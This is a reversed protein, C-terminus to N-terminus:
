VKRVEDKLLANAVSQPTARSYISTTSINSHRLIKKIDVINTNKETLRMALTHRLIHLGTKNIGAKKYIRNVILYAEERRLGKGTRTVMLPAKEDVKAINKFYYIEEEIIKESIYVVQEKGGKGYVKINCLGHIESASFDKLKIRLAESIRLGAYLMVKVLLSNRNTMYNDKKILTKKLERLLNDVEDSNQYVLKEEPSSDSAIKINKFYREFSFFDDNNDSIFTFFSRIAKLYTKKTSKSLYLGYEMKKGKRKANDELFSLYSTFHMSKIDSLQIEDQYARLHEIFMDIARSYLEITNNSYSLARINNIYAKYWRYLDDVINTHVLKM